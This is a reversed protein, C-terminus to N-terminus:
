KLFALKEALINRDWLIVNNSAALDIAAKTFISNTVVMAKDCSYYAMGTVVEQIATNGVTGGYCKAQIGYKIGNKEAIVDVGQDGSKKTCYATYGMKTFLYSIFVEFDYGSMIDIDEISIHNLKNFDINNQGFLKQELYSTKLSENYGKCINIIKFYDERLPHNRLLEIFNNSHINAHIEIFSIYFVFPILEDLDSYNLAGKQIANNTYDEISINNKPSFIALWENSFKQHTFYNFIYWVIEKSYNNDINYKKEVILTFQHLLTSASNVNINNIFDDKISLYNTTLFDRTNIMKTLNYVAKEVDTDNILKKVEDQIYSSKKIHLQRKEEEFLLENKRKIENQEEIMKYMMKSFKTTYESEFLRLSTLADFYKNTLEHECKEFLECINNVLFIDFIYNNRDTSWKYLYVVLYPLIRRTDEIRTIKNFSYYFYIIDYLISNTNNEYTAIIDNVSCNIPPIIKPDISKYYYNIIPFIILYYTLIPAYYKNLNYQISVSKILSMAKDYDFGTKLSYFGASVIDKYETYYFINTLWNGSDNIENFTLGNYATLSLFCSTFNSLSFSNSFYNIYNSNRSMAKAEELLGKEISADRIIEIAKVKYTNLANRIDFIRSLNIYNLMKACEILDDINKFEYLCQPNAFEVRYSRVRERIIPEKGNFLLISKVDKNTEYDIYTIPTIKIKYEINDGSFVQFFENSIVLKYRSALVIEIKKDDWLHKKAIEEDINVPYKNLKYDYM